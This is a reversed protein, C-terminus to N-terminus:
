IMAFVSYAVILTGVTLSSAGKKCKVGLADSGWNLADNVISGTKCGQSAVAVNKKAAAKKMLLKQRQQRKLMQRKRLMKQKRAKVRANQEWKKFAAKSAAKRRVLEAKKHAEVKAILVAKAALEAAIKKQAEYKDKAAKLAAAKQEAMAADQEKKEQAAKLAAAKQKAM